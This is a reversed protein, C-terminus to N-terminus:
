NLKIPILRHVYVFGVMAYFNFPIRAFDGIDSIFVIEDKGVDISIAGEKNFSVYESDSDCDRKWGNLKLFNYIKKKENM